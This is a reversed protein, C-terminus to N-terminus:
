HDMVSNISGVINWLLVAAIHSDVYGRFVLSLFQSVKLYAFGYQSERLLVLTRTPHRRDFPFLEQIRQLSNFSVSINSYFLATLMELYFAHKCIADIRNWHSVSLNIPVYNTIELIPQYFLIDTSNFFEVTQQLQEADTDMDRVYMQSM